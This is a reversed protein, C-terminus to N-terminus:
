QGRFDYSWVTLDARRSHRLRGDTQLGYSRGCRPPPCINSQNVPIKVLSIEIRRTGNRERGFSLALRVEEGRRRRTGARTSSSPSLASSDIRGCPSARPPNRACSVSGHTGELGARADGVRKEGGLASRSGKGQRADGTERPAHDVLERLHLRARRPIWTRACETPPSPRGRSTRSPSPLQFGLRAAPRALRPAGERPLALLLADLLADWPSSWPSRSLSRPRSAM